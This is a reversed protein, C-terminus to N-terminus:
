FKIQNCVEFKVSALKIGCSMFIGISNKLFIFGNPVIRWMDQMTLLIHCTLVMICTFLTLEFM